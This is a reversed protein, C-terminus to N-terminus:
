WLRSFSHNALLSPSLCLIAPSLRLFNLRLLATMAVPQEVWVVGLIADSTEAGEM